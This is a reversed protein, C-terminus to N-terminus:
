LWLCNQEHNSLLANYKTNFFEIVVELVAGRPPFKMGPMLVSEYLFVVWNYILPQGYLRGLSVEINEMRM